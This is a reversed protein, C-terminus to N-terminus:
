EIHGRKSSHYLSGTPERWTWRGPETTFSFNSYPWLYADRLLGLWPRDSCMMTPAGTEWGSSRVLERHQVFDSKQTALDEQPLYCGKSPTRRRHLNGLPILLKKPDVTDITQLGCYPVCTDSWFIGAMGTVAGCPHRDSVRGQIAWNEITIFWWSWPLESFFFIIM